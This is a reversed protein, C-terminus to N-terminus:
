ENEGSQIALPLASLIVARKCGETSFFDFAVDARFGGPLLCFIALFVAMPTVYALAIATRVARPTIAHRYLPHVIGVYHNFALALLTFVSSFFTALKFM